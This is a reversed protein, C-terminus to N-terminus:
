ICYLPFSITSVVLTTNDGLTVKDIIQRDTSSAAVSLAWPAIGVVSQQEPGSNGASQITLIGKQMAHFAGIAMPDSVSFIEVGDDIADDFVIYVQVLVINLTLFFSTFM